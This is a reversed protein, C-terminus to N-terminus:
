WTNWSNKNIWNIAIIMCRWYRSFIKPQKSYSFKIVYPELSEELVEIEGRSIKERNHVRVMWKWMDFVSFKIIEIKGGNAENSRKKSGRRSKINRRAKRYISCCESITWLSPYKLILTFCFKWGICGRYSSKEPM